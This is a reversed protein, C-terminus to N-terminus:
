GMLSFNMKLDQNGVGHKAMELALLQDDFIQKVDYLLRGILTSKGDDVSGCTIFRLLFKKDLNNLFYEFNSIELKKNALNINM